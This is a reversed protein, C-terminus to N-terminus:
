GYSVGKWTGDFISIKVGMNRYSRWIGIKFIGKTPCDRGICIESSGRAIRSKGKIAM